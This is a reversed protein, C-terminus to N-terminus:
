YKSAAEITEAVLRMQSFRDYGKTIQVNSHGAAECAKSLGHMSIVKTVFAARLEHFRRLEKIGALTQLNRFRRQFNWTPDAAHVDELEGAALREMNKAYWKADLCLYPQRGLGEIVIVIDKLLEVTEGGIMMVEPVGVMRERYNKPQWPWTNETQKKARLTLHPLDGSLDIDRVCVNLMEGRRCGLLGLCIRVRWIRSSVQMLAGLEASTFTQKRSETIRYLRVGEFPNRAITGHKFLWSFFPKFNALYGNASRKSRGEALITRYDEAIATTVEQVDIDGFEAVFYDLAKRKFRVSSPRLDSRKIYKEFLKAVTQNMNSRREFNVAAVNIAGRMMCCDFASLL